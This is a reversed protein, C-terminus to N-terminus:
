LYKTAHRLSGSGIARDSSSLLLGSIWIRKRLTNIRWAIRLGVCSIIWLNTGTWATFVLSSESEFGRWKMHTSTRINNGKKVTTLLRKCTVRIMEYSRNNYKVLIIVQIMEHPM